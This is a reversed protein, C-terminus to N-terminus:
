LLVGAALLALGVLLLSSVPPLGSSTAAGTSAASSTTPSILSSPDPTVNPDNSIPDRYGVFWNWCCGTAQNPGNPTYSGGHWGACQATHYACSGQQRDSISDPAKSLDAQVAQVYQAWGQAFVTLAAQQVSQYRQSPPISLWNALNSQLIAEIQNADNSAQIKQLNPKFFSAVLDAVAGGIALFPALPGALPALAILTSGAATV